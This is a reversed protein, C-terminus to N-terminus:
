LNDGNQFARRYLAPAEMTIVGGLVLLGGIVLYLKLSEGLLWISAATAVVPQPTTLIAVQSPDVRKLLQFWIIYAAATIMFGCYVVSAWGHITILSYDADLAPKILFPIGMFSGVILCFMTTPMAGYKRVMPKGLVTYTAWVIVALLILLDGAFYASHILPGDEGTAVVFVGCLASLIALAKYWKIKEYGLLASLVLAFVATGGYLFSCHSPLTYKMGYLYLLQNVPVAMAALALMQLLDKREVKPWLKGFITITSVVGLGVLFRWFGFVFPTFEKLGIKTVIYGSVVLSIHTVILLIVSSSFKQWM